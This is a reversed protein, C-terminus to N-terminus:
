VVGKGFPIVDRGRGNNKRKIPAAKIVELERLRMSMANDQGEFRVWTWTDNYRDTVTSNRVIVTGLTGPVVKQPLDGPDYQLKVRQGAKLM